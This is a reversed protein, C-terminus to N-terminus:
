KRNLFQTLVVLVFVTSLIFITFLSAGVFVEILLKLISYCCIIALTFNKLSTKKKSINLFGYAMLICVIYLIYDGIITHFIM